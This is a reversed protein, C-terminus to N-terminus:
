NTQINHRKKQHFKTRFELIFINDSFKEASVSSRWIPVLAKKGRVHVGHSVSLEPFSDELKL